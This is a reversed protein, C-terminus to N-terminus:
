SWLVMLPKAEWIYGVFRVRVDIGRHERGLGIEKDESGSMGGRVVELAREPTCLSASM